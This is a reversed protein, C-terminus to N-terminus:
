TACKFFAEISVDGTVGPYGCEQAIAHLLLLTTKNYHYSVVSLINNYAEM